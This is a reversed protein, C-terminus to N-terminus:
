APLDYGEVLRERGARAAVKGSEKEKSKNKGLNWMFILGPPTRRRRRPRDRSCLARWTRGRQRLHRGRGAWPWTSSRRACVGGRELGRMPRRVSLDNGHGPKHIFGCRAHSGRDRQPASKAEKPPPTAPDHPPEATLKELVRWVTRRPTQARRCERGCCPLHSPSKQAGPSRQPPAPAKTVGSRAGNVKTGADLSKDIFYPCDHEKSVHNSPM